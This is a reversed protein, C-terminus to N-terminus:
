EFHPEGLARGLDNSYIYLIFHRDQLWPASAARRIRTVAGTLEAVSTNPEDTVFLRITFPRGPTALKLSKAIDDDSVDFASDWIQGKLDLRIRWAADGGQYGYAYVIEFRVKEAAAAHAKTTAGGDALAAGEKRPAATPPMRTPQTTAVVDVWWNAPTPGGGRYERFRRNLLRLQAATKECDAETSSQEIRELAKELPWHVDSEMNVEWQQRSTPLVLLGAVLAAVILGAAFGILGSLLKM